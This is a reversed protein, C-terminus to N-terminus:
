TQIEFTDLLEVGKKVYELKPFRRYFYTVGLTDYVKPILKNTFHLIVPDYPCRELEEMYGYTEPLPYAKGAASLADQDYFRYVHTRVNERAKELFGTERIKDLNMLMIGSVMEGEFDCADPCIYACYEYGKDLYDWYMKTIDGQVAIDCDFYLVHPTYKLELDALLRLAAYPTFGSWENPNKWFHKMYLEKVDHFIIRSTPDLYTVIKKLKNRQWENLSHFDRCLGDDREITIDMTFIHWNIGKNHTLTSYIALEMGPYVVDNGAMLINIM